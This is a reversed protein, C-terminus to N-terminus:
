SDAMVCRVEKQKKKFENADVNIPVFQHPSDIKIPNNSHQPSGDQIWKTIKKPDTTGTELLEVRQYTNPSNVWRLKDQTKRGDVLKRLPSLWKDDDLLQGASSSAAPPIEVDYRIRQQDARLLPQRYLYGTRFGANDLMRMQAEFELDWVKWKKPKDGGGGGAPRQASGNPKPQAQAAQDDGPKGHVGLGGGRRVVQRVQEIAEPTMLQINDLGVPMLRIQAECAAIVNHMLHLAEELSEGCAVVGHNRLMLVKNFVGLNKTILEREATDVLLGRYDHYSVDGIIAAEQSIPLLGCKMASVAVCPPYHIHIIAKIDPRAAHIASHLVFGAKNFGFNTSGPDVVNGQLDVKILSSATVEHYQLGFPNLLFHEHDQSLRVTIHNYIGASWGYLDVLRYVAAVKCRVLKEGKAYRFADVGRIDNIPTSSQGFRNSISNRANHPLLLETVQHLASLSAPLYGENLQGDIIRELEERFVQSNMIVEVRKRREM